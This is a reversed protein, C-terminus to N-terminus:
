HILVPSLFQAPSSQSHSYPDLQFPPFAEHLLPGSSHLKGPLATCSPHALFAFSRHLLWSVPSHAHQGPLFPSQRRLASPGCPLSSPPASYGGVTNDRVASVAARLWARRRLLLVPARCEVGRARSAPRPRRRPLWLSEAGSFDLVEGLPPRTGLDAETDARDSMMVAPLAWPGAKDQRTQGCGNKVVPHLCNQGTTAPLPGELHHPPQQKRSLGPSPFCCPSPVPM